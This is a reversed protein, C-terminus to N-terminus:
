PKAPPTVRMYKPMRGEELWLDILPTIVDVSGFGWRHFPNDPMLLTCAQGDPRCHIIAGRYRYSPGGQPGVMASREPRAAPAPLDPILAVSKLTATGTIAEGARRVAAGSVLAITSRCRRRMLEMSIVKHFSMNRQVFHTAEAKRVRLSSLPCCCRPARGKKSTEERFEAAGEPAAKKKGLLFAVQPTSPQSPHMLRWVLGSEHYRCIALGAAGIPRIM